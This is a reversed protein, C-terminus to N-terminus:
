LSKVGTYLKDNKQSLHFYGPLSCATVLASWYLSQYLYAQSLSEKGFETDQKM